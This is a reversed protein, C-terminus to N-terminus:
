SHLCFDPQFPHANSSSTRKHYHCFSGAFTCFHLVGCLPPVNQLYFSLVGKCLYIYGPFEVHVRSAEAREFCFLVKLQQELVVCRIVDSLMDSRVAWRDLLAFAMELAGYVFLGLAFFSIVLSGLSVKGTIVLWLVLISTGAVLLLSLWAKISPSVTQLERLLAKISAFLGSAAM